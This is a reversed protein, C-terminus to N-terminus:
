VLLAFAHPQGLEECVEYAAHSAMELSSEQYWVDGDVEVDYAYPQTAYAPLQVRRVVIASMATELHSPSPQAYMIVVAYDFCVGVCSFLQQFNYSRACAYTRVCAGARVALPTSIACSDFVMAPSRLLAQPVGAGECRDAGISRGGIGFGLVCLHTPCWEVM